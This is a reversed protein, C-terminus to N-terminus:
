TRQQLLNEWSSIKHVNEFTWRSFHSNLNKESENPQNNQISLLFTKKSKNIVKSQALCPLYLLFHCNERSVNQILGPGPLRVEDCRVSASASDSPRLRATGLRAPVSLFSLPISISYSRYYNEVLGWTKSISIEHIISINPIREKPPCSIEPFTPFHPGM